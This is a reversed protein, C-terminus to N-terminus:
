ILEFPLLRWAKPDVCEGLREPVKPEPTELELIREVWVELHEDDGYDDDDDGDSSGGDGGPRLLPQNEASARRAFRVFPRFRDPLTLSVRWCARVRAADSIVPQSDMGSAEGPPLVFSFPRDEEIECIRKGLAAEFRGILPGEKGTQLLLCIAKRRLLPDRCKRATLCLPQILGLIPSFPPLGQKSSTPNALAAPGLVEEACTIIHRFEPLYTDYVMQCRLPLTSICILTCHCQAKLVALYRLQEPAVDARRTTDLLKERHSIWQRLAAILLGQELLRDASSDFYGSTQNERLLRAIFHMSAHLIIPQQTVLEDITDPKDRYSDFRSPLVPPKAWAFLAMQTDLSM